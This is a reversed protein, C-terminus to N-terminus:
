DGMDPHPACGPASMRQPSLWQTAASPTKGSNECSRRFKPWEYTTTERRKACRIPPESHILQKERGAENRQHSARANRNCLVSRCLLFGNKRGNDHRRKAAFARQCARGCRHRNDVAGGDLLRRREIKKLKKTGIRANGDDVVTAHACRRREAQAAHAAGARQNEDVTNAHRGRGATRCREGVNREFGDLTNFDGLARMRRGITSIGDAANDVDDGAFASATAIALDHAAAYRCTHGIRPTCEGIRINATFLIAGGKGDAAAQDARATVVEGIRGGPTM